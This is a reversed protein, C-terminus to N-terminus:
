PKSKPVIPDYLKLAAEVDAVLKPDSQRVDALFTKLLKASGALRQDHTIERPIKVSFRFARPVSAAWREFTSARHPRYFTSNIEVAPLVKAYRALLSEGPPFRAQNPRPISWGATGVYIKSRVRWNQQRAARLETPACASRSM